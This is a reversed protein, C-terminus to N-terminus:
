RIVSNEGEMFVRFLLQSQSESNDQVEDILVIPFRRRIASQITPASSMLEHAWLFMEDYCFFGGKCATKCAAQINLHTPTAKGLPTKSKGWPVDGISFDTAKIRLLDADFGATEM